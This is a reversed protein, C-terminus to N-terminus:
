YREFEDDLDDKEKDDKEFSLRHNDFPREESAHQLESMSEIKKGSLKGPGPRNNTSKRFEHIREKAAPIEDGSAQDRRTKFFAITTRLQEAQSALEESTSALAESAASNQQMVQDLQQIASNIQVAGQDQERSAASIEQVLEATKQINPVLQALMQGANEAVAVSANALQSIDAAAAQSREALARVEAAVVAFGKGFDQARAAEITANLSLMRTQRTIDEIVAVKQAIGQIANVAEVVANGSKRADKAAQVAIKETQAANDKNQRINSAMQEMSASVEEVSAAQSNAGQSMRVASSSMQRSGSTVNDAASMVNNVVENLRHIMTRFVNALCGVEDQGQVAIQQGIDGDAIANAIRTIDSLPHTIRMTVLWVLLLTAADILIIVTVIKGIERRLEARMLERTVVVELQGLSEDGRVIEQEGALGDEAIEDDSEVIQMTGDDQQQRIFRHEAYAGKVVVAMIRKEMMESRITEMLQADDFNWIPIVLNKALRFTVMEVLDQLEQESRTTISHYQYIGFIILIGTIIFFLSVGLRAAMRRGWPIHSTTQTM